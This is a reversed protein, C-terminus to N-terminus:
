RKLPHHRFRCGICVLNMYWCGKRFIVDLMKLGKSGLSGQVGRVVNSTLCSLLPKSASGSSCLGYGLNQICRSCWWLSSRVFILLPPAVEVFV